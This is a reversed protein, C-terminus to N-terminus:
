AVNLMSAFIICFYDLVSEYLDPERPFRSALQKIGNGQAAAKKTHFRPSAPELVFVAPQLVFMAPELVFTAPQLVFMAPELVFTAPQLVFM